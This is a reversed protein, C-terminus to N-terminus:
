AALTAQDDEESTEGMHRPKYRGNLGTSTSPTSGMRGTGHNLNKRTKAGLATGIVLALVSGIALSGAVIQWRNLSRSQDAMQKEMSAIKERYQPLDSDKSFWGAEVFPAYLLACIFILM